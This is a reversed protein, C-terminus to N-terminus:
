PNSRIIQTISMATLIGSRVGVPTHPRPPAPPPQSLERDRLAIAVSPVASKPFEQTLCCGHSAANYISTSNECISRKAQM